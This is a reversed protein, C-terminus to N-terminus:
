KQQWGSNPLRVFNGPLTKDIAKRAALKEVDEVQINNAEAIREYEELRKQNVTSILSRIERSPSNVVSGLYGTSDEGVLGQAKANDLAMDALAFSTALVLFLVALITKISRMSNVPRMTNM